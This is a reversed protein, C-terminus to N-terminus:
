RYHCVEITTKDKTHPLNCFVSYDILVSVWHNILVKQSLVTIGQIGQAIHLLSQGVSLYPGILHSMIKLTSYSEDQAIRLVSQALSFSWKFSLM